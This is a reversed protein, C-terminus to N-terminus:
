LRLCLSRVTAKALQATVRDCVPLHWQKPTLCGARFPLLWHLPTDPQSQPCRAVRLRGYSLDFLFSDVSEEEWVHRPTRWLNPFRHGFERLLVRRDLWDQLPARLSPEAREHLEQDLKSEDLRHLISQHGCWQM